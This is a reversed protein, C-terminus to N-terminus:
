HFEKPSLARKHTEYHNIRLPHVNMASDITYTPWLTHICDTGLILAGSFFTIYDTSGATKNCIQNQSISLLFFVLISCPYLVTNEFPLPLKISGPVCKIQHTANREIACYSRHTIRQFSHLSWNMSFRYSSEHLNLM